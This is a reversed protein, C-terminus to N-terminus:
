SAEAVASHGPEAVLARAGCDKLVAGIGGADLGHNVPVFVAGLWACALYTELLAPSNLGLYAARDGAAVGAGALVEALRGARDALEAYGIETGEYVLAPGGRPRRAAYRVAAAPSIDVQM